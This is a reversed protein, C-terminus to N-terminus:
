RPPDACFATVHDRLEPRYRFVFDKCRRVDILDHGVGRLFWALHFDSTVFLPEQASAAFFIIRKDPAPSSAAFIVHETSV